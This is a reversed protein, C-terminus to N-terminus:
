FKVSHCIKLSRGGSADNCGDGGGMSTGADRCCDEAVGSRVTKTGGSVIVREKKGSVGLETVNLSALLALPKVANPGDCELMGTATKLHTPHSSSLVLDDKGTLASGGMYQLM